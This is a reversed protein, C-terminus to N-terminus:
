AEVAEAETGINTGRIHETAVDHIIDFSVFVVGGYLVTFIIVIASGILLVLLNTM